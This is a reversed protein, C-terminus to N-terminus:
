GPLPIALMLAREPVPSLRSFPPKKMDGGLWRVDLERFNPGVSLIELCVPDKEMENGGVGNSGAM